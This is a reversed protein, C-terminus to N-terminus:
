REENREKEEEDKNRPSPTAKHNHANRANACPMHSSKASPSGLPANSKKIEDDRRMEESKAGRTQKEPRTHGQLQTVKTYNRMAYSVVEGKPPGIACHEGKGRKM